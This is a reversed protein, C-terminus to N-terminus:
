DHVRPFCFELDDWPRCEFQPPCVRGLGCLTVCRMTPICTHSPSQSASTERWRIRFLPPIDPMSQLSQRLWPPLHRSASARVTTKECASLVFEHGSVCIGYQGPYPRCDDDNTCQHGLQEHENRCELWEDDGVWQRGPGCGLEDYPLKPAFQRDISHNTPDRQQTAWKANTASPQGNQEFMTAIPQPYTTGFGLHRDSEHNTLEFGNHDPPDACNECVSVQALILFIWSPKPMRITESKMQTFVQETITSRRPSTRLCLSNSRLLCSKSGASVNPPTMSQCRASNQRLDVVPM